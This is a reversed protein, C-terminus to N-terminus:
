NQDITNRVTEIFKGILPLSDFLSLIWLLLAVIITAGVAGGFGAVVGKLFNMKYTKNQDIYGTEYINAVMRGLAEYDPPKKNPKPM